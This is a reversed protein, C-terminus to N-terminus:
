PPSRLKLCVDVADRNIKTREEVVVEGCGGEGEGVGEAGAVEVGDVEVGHGHNIQPEDVM